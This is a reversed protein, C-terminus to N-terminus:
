VLRRVVSSMLVGGVGEECGLDREDVLDGVEAFLDAGIYLLDGAADAEVVADARFEQIGPGAEAARAERLVGDRQDLGRLVGLCRQADDLRDGGDVFRSLAAHRALDGRREAAAHAALGDRDEPQGELRVGVVHALRRRDREDGREGVHARPHAGVVGDSHRLGLLHDAPDLEGAPGIVAGLVGVGEDDDGFPSLEPREIEFAQPRHHLLRDQDVQAVDIAGLLDLAEGIVADPPRASLKITQRGRTAGGVLRFPSGTRVGTENAATALAIKVAKGCSVWAIVNVEGAPSELAILPQAVPNDNLVGDSCPKSWSTQAAAHLRLKYLASHETYRASLAAQGRCLSIAAAGRFNNASASCPL